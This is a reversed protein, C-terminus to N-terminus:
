WKTQKNTQKTNSHSWYFYISAQIGHFLQLHGLSLYQKFGRELFFVHIRLNM